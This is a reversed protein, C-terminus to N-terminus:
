QTGGRRLDARARAIAECRGPCFWHAPAGDRSGHVRVMDPVARGGAPTGCAETVCKEVVANGAVPLATTRRRGVFNGGNWDKSAESVAM